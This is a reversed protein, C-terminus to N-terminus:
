VGFFVTTLASFLDHRGGSSIRANSLCLFASSRVSFRAARDLPALDFTRRALGGAPEYALLHLAMAASAFFRLSTSRLISSNCDVVPPKREFSAM